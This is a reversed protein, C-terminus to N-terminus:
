IICNVYPQQWVPMLIYLLLHFFVALSGTSCSEHDVLLPCMNQVLIGSGVISDRLWHSAVPPPSTTQKGPCYSPLLFVAVMLDVGPDVFGVFGTSHELENSIQQDWREYWCWCRWSCHVWHKGPYILASSSLWWGWAFSAKWFLNKLCMRLRWGLMTELLSRPLMVSIFLLSFVIWAHRQSHCSRASKVLKRGLPCGLPFSVSPPQCLHPHLGSLFIELASSQGKLCDEFYCCVSGCPPGKHSGKAGSVVSLVSHSFSHIFAGLNLDRPSSGTSWCQNHAPLPLM